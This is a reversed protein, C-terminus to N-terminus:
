EGSQTHQLAPNLGVLRKPPYTPCLRNNERNKWNYAALTEEFHKKDGPSAISMRMKALINLLAEYWGIFIGRVIAKLLLVIILGYFSSFLKLWM